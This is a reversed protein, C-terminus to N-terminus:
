MADCGKFHTSVYNANRLEGEQIGTEFGDTLVKITTTWHHTWPLSFSGQMMCFGPVVKQGHAREKLFRSYQAVQDTAKLDGFAVMFFPALSCFGKYSTDHIGYKLTMSTQKM